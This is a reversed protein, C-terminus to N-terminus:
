AGARVMRQQEGSTRVSRGRRHLKRIAQTAADVIDDHADGHGTFSAMEDLFIGTWWKEAVHVDGAEITGTTAIARALKSGKPNNPIIGPLGRRRLAQVAAREQETMGLESAIEDSLEYLPFATRLADMVEPGNGTNEMVHHRCSPYRVMLLAVANETTPQDWQGRLMDVLWLDKGTRAWVQGVVFDGSRKEKLKMDWSSIWADAKGSFLSELDLRWWARKFIHGEAPAPRQQEMASNASLYGWAVYNGTETELAFVPEVGEAEIAVVRDSERENRGAGEFLRAAAQERKAFPTDRVLRRMVAGARHISVSLRDEVGRGPPPPELTATYALGLEDLVETIRKAIPLNRGVTQCVNINSRLLCGEGDVIGALYAWLERERPTLPGEDTPCLFRLPTGVNAPRYPRGARTFWRHERTARASRGSALRYRHVERDAVWGAHRVVSPVLRLKHGPESVFGVVEDGERVDAIPRTTWDAMLIPTEAPSCWLYQGVAAKRALAEKESFREPSLLEGPERGLPDPLRLLPDRNGPDAAEAFTPLRVVVWQDAAPNSLALALLRSPIDDEHWRTGVHIIPCTESQLRMRVQSTYVNWVHERQTPSHATTWGKFLDDCLAVDVPIGTITGDIGVCYLGGGEPTSWLGRARKDARIRFRLQARYRGILDRVEGGFEVAKDASYSVYMIRLSPDRDLLWIIFWQLLHSKGYQSAVMHIQHPADGSAARAMTEAMLVVHRWLQYPRRANRTVHAAFRAPTRRWPVRNDLLRKFVPWQDPHISEYIARIDEEGLSDIWADGYRELLGLAQERSPRAPPSAVREPADLLETM